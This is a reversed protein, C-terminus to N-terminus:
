EEALRAAHAAAAILADMASSHSSAGAERYPGSWVPGLRGMWPERAHKWISDANVRAFRLYERAAFDDSPLAAILTQVNRLFIGKFQLGDGSIDPEGPEHLVGNRDTLAAIAASAINRAAELYLCTATPDARALEVLGGLIVGQNYTYVTGNNNTCTTPDLGDNITNNANILGSQQFFDWQRLAWQLYYSRLAPVRNSLHAALSLFLENAIASHYTRDRDWWVGGCTANYGTALMDEFLDQATRLYTGNRGIDYVKLWALAWWGEDDYFGNLFGKPEVGPTSDPCTDWICSTTGNSKIEKLNFTQANTFTNSVIGDTRLRLLPAVETLDALVQICNASQWWGATRYLGTTANYWEQLVEASSVANYLYTSTSVGSPLQRTGSLGGNLRFSYDMAHISVASAALLAMQEVKM